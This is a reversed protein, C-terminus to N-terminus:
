LLQQEKGLFTPIGSLVGQFDGLPDGVRLGRSGIHCERIAKEHKGLRKKVVSIAKHVEGHAEFFRM